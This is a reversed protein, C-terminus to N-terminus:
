ANNIYYLTQPDITGALVLADYEAQTVSAFSVMNSTDPGFSGTSVDRTISNNTILYHINEWTVGNETTMLWLEVNAGYIRASSPLYYSDYTVTESDVPYLDGSLTSFTYSGANYVYGNYGLSSIYESTVCGTSDTDTINGTADISITHSVSGQDKVTISATEGEEVAFISGDMLSSYTEQLNVVKVISSDTVKIQVGQVTNADITKLYFSSVDTSYTGSSADADSIVYDSAVELDQWVPAGSGNSVLYQGQTGATTPAYFSNGGYASGKNSRFYRIEDGNIGMTWAEGALYQGVTVGSKDLIPLYLDHSETSNNPTFLTNDWKVYGGDHVLTMGAFTFYDIYQPDSSRLNIHSGYTSTGYHQQMWWALDNNSTYIKIWGWTDSGVSPNNWRDWGNIYVVLYEDGDLWFNSQGM